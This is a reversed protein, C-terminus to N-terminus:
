CTEQPEIGYKLQYLQEFSFKKFVESYDRPLEQKGPDNYGFVRCISDMAKIKDYTRIKKTYGILEKKRDEHSYEENVEIGALAAAAKDDL